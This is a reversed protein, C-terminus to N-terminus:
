CAKKPLRLYFTTGDDASSEVHVTGGHAEAMRRTIYLGLGMRGGQKELNEEEGAVGRFPQFILEQQGPSIPAGQNHVAAIVEGADEDCEIAVRVPSGTRAHRAANTILNSLAQRIRGPDWDGVLDGETQLRIEIGPRSVRVERVVDKGIEELDTAARRLTIGGGLEGSTYELLDDVLRSMAKASHAITKALKGDRESLEAYESLVASANSVANLPSRLDHGLVALFMDRYQHIARAYETISEALAQDIAEHFRIVEEVDSTRDHEGAAVYHRMVSARLARYEAFTEEMTFGREARALGHDEAATRPLEPDVVADGKGKIERESDTQTQELDTAMATLMEAAHDRLAEVDM